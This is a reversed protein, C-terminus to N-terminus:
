DLIDTDATTAHAVAVRVCAVNLIRVHRLLQDTPTLVVGASRLASRTAFAELLLFPPLRCCEFFEYAFTLM